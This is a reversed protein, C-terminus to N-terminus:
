TNAVPWFINTVNLLTPMQHNKKPSMAPSDAEWNHAITKFAQALV